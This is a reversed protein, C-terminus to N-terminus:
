STSKAFQKQLDGSDAFITNAVLAPPVLIFLLSVVSAAVDTSEFLGAALLLEGYKTAYSMFVTLAVIEVVLLPGSILEGEPLPTLTSTDFVKQEEEKEEGGTLKAFAGSIATLPNLENVTWGNSMAIRGAAICLTTNGMFTFFAQATLVWPVQNYFIHFTLAACSSIHSPLMGWTLGKWKQNGSVEAYRWALNMALLFEFVSSWHVIWTPVSLANVPELVPMVEAPLAGVGGLLPTHAEFGGIPIGAAITIVVGALWALSINRMTGNNALEADGQLAGRFGLVLLINTCTLLSEAAGHLWDSDALIVGFTGKAIIGTPITAVVFLLLFQFGYQVLPPTNNGKYSLFYLFFLYPLLSAQFLVGNINQGQDAFSTLLSMDLFSQAAEAAGAVEPAAALGELANLGVRQRLQSHRQLSGGGALSSSASAGGLSPALGFTPGGQGLLSWVLGALPLLCGARLAGASRRQRAM